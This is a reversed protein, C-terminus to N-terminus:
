YTMTGEYCKRVTEARTEPNHLLEFLIHSKQKIEDPVEVLKTPAGKVYETTEGNETVYILKRM